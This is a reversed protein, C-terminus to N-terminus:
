LSLQSCDGDPKNVDKIKDNDAWGEHYVAAPVSHTPSSAALVYMILCENYGRVPFNMEWGYEPGLALVICEETATGTLIWKKGYSILEPPWYAKRGYERNSFVSACM